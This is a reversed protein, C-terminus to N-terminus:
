RSYTVRLEDKEITHKYLYYGVMAGPTEENLELKDIDLAHISFIYNHLQDGQPPCAGGYGPRGFDTRSQVSEKPAIGADVQGANKNLSKVEKPINFIIWHWWGSGTPADPDYVTIAYSKTEEPSNQWHLEPSVNAGNCGFGNFVQEGGMRAGPELQPSTLVFDAGFSFSPGAVMLVFSVLVAINMKM